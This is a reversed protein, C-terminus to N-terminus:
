INDFFSKNETIPEVSADVKPIETDETLALIKQVTPLGDDELDPFEQIKAKPKNIKVTKEVTKKGKIPAMKKTVKEKPIANKKELPKAAQKSKIIVEAKALGEIVIKKADFAEPAYKTQINTLRDTTNGLLANLDYLLQQKAIDLSQYEKESGEIDAKAAQKLSEITENAENLIREKELEANNIIEDGTNEAKAWYEDGEAKKKAYYENANQTTETLLEDAQQQANSLLKQANEDGEKITRLMISEVDKLRNLEKEAIELHKQVKALEDLHNDWEKSLAVLFQDVAEKDYGRFSKHFTYNRIEEPTVKM